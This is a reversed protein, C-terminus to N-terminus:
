HISPENITVDDVSRAQLDRITKNNYGTLRFPRGLLERNGFMGLRAQTAM